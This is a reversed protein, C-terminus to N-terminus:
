SVNKLLVFAGKLFGLDAVTYTHRLIQGLLIIRLTTDIQTRMMHAHRMVIYDLLSVYYVVYSSV